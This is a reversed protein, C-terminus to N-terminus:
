QLQPVEELRQYLAQPTGCNDVTIIDARSLRAQTEMGRQAWMRPLMRRPHFGDRRVTRVVRALLPARVLIVADCLSDMEMHFLLAANIVVRRAPSSSTETQEIERRVEDRMWPHLISELTRLKDRSSFVVPGLRSRDVTGDSRLINEGFAAVVADRRADLARHGVHDVNIEHWGRRRLWATVQDKGACCKGAVGLVAPRKPSLGTPTLDDPTM